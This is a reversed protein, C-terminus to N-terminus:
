AAAPRVTHRSSRPFTHREAKHHRHLPRDCLIALGLAALGTTIAIVLGACAFLICQVAFAMTLMGFRSAYLMSVAPLLIMRYVGFYLGLVIGAGLILNYLKHSHKIVSNTKMDDKRHFTRVQECVQECM